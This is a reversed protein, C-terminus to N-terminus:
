ASNRSDVVLTPYSHHGTDYESKTNGCGSSVSGFTMNKVVCNSDNATFTVVANTIVCSDNGVSGEISGITISCDENDCQSDLAAIHTTSKDTAIITSSYPQLSGSM